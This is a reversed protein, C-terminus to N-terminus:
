IQMCTFALKEGKAMCTKAGKTPALKNKKLDICTPRLITKRQVPARALSCQFPKRAVQRSSADVQLEMQGGM